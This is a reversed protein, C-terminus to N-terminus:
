ERAVAILASTPMVLEDGDTYRAITEATEQRVARVLNDLEAETMAAFEPLVAAAGTVYLSVYRDPAPFRAMFNFPEIVVDKLGADELLSRLDRPDGLEYPTTMVPVGLKREIAANLSVDFPHHALGRWVAIALRGNVALVRRMERTAAARDAFYQLGQQCLVLEFSADAFPLNEASGDRWDIPAGAPAPHTRAVALMVPSVDLGVVSGLIGVLPAVARAAAGTGCALDLVREGPQPAARRLLEPTLPAILSPVLYRDYIDAPSDGVVEERLLSM